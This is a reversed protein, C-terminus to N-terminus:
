SFLNCLFYFPNFGVEPGFYDDFSFNSIDVSFRKSYEELLEVADDGDVGLDEGIRTELSLSKASLLESIFSIVNHEETQM